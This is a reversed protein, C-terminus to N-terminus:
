VTMACGCGNPGCGGCGGGGGPVASAEGDSGGSFASFVSLQRSSDGGCEPCPAPDDMRTVPRLKDFRQECSACTYEYIPM